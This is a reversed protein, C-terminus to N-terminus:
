CFKPTSPPFRRSLSLRRRRVRSWRIPWRPGGASRPVAHRVPSVPAGPAEGPMM